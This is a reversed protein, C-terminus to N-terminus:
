TTLKRTAKGQAPSYDVLMSSTHSQGSAKSGDAHFYIARSAATRGIPGFYGMFLAEKWNTCVRPIFRYGLMVAPIRRFALVLFGLALLRGVTIGTDYPMHFQDWPMAAGLFLFTAFNLLTEITSNFTDHRAQIEANYLGDWNLISGAIFSALSEDSGFCGCTGVIFM